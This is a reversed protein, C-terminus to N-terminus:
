VKPKVERVEMVEVERVELVLSVEWVGGSARLSPGFRGFRM